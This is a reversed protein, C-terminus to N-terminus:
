FMRRRLTGIQGQGFPREVRRFTVSVIARDPDFNEKLFTEKGAIKLIVVRIVDNGKELFLIDPILVPEGDVFKNNATTRDELWNLKALVTEEPTKSRHYGYDTFLFTWTFERKGVGKFELAEQGGIVTKDNWKVVKSFPLETPNYDLDMFDTLLDERRLRIKKGKKRTKVLKGYQSVKSSSDLTDRAGEQGIITSRLRNLDTQDGPM